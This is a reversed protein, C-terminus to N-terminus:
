GIFVEVEEGDEDIHVYFPEEASLNELIDVYQGVPQDKLGSIRHGFNQFFWRIIGIPMPLSIAIRQPREGPKQKVRVHVWVGHSTQFSVSLIFIGLLFPIWALWFGWRFGNNMYGNFMWVAGLITILLGVGFPLIWWRKLQNLRHKEEPSISPQYTDSASEYDEKKKAIVISDTENSERTDKQNGMANILRLGEEATIQGQEVMDMITREAKDVM